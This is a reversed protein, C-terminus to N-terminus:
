ILEGDLLNFIQHTPPEEKMKYIFDIDIYPDHSSHTSTWHIM